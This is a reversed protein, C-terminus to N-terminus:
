GNFSSSNGWKEDFKAKNEDFLEQRNSLNNLTSGPTHAVKIKTMKFPIGALQWRKILDDDEHYGVGFQEDYGGVKEYVWRPMCYFSRPMDWQGDMNDPITIAEPDCMDYLSGEKLECDNNTVILYDGTALELGKNIAKGMGTGDNVIILKEDAGMSSVCRQLLIDHEPEKPWHPVILSIKAKM